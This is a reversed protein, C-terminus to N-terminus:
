PVELPHSLRLHINRGSEADVRYTGGARPSWFEYYDREDWKATRGGGLGPDAVGALSLAKRADQATPATESPTAARARVYCWAPIWEDPSTHTLRSPTFQWRGDSRHDAEITWEADRTRVDVRDIHSIDRDTSPKRVVRIRSDSPIEFWHQRAYALLPRVERLRYANAAFPGAIGPALLGFAVVAFVGWAPRWGRVIRLLWCGEAVFLVTVVAAAATCPLVEALDSSGDLSGWLMFALGGAGALLILADHILAARAASSRGYRFGVAIVLSPLWVPIVAPLLIGGLVLGTNPELSTMTAFGWALFAPPLLATIAALVYRVRAASPLPPLERAATAGDAPEESPPVPIM